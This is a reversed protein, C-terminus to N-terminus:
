RAPRCPPPSPAAPPGAGPTTPSADGPPAQAWGPPSPAGPSKAPGRTRFHHYCCQDPWSVVSVSRRRGPVPWTPVGSPTRIVPGSCAWGLGGDRELGRQAMRSHAQALAVAQDLVESWSLAEAQGPGVGMAGALESAAAVVARGHRLQGALDDWEPDSMWREVQRPGIAAMVDGDGEHGFAEPHRDRYSEIRGALGSWAQRAGPDTPPEGLVAVLHAPVIAEAALDAVRAARTDDLAADFEAVAETLEVRQPETDALAKTRRRENSLADDLRLRAVREADVASAAADEARQLASRAAVVGGKDRRGFHRESAMALQRRRDEVGYRAERLDQERAALQRKAEAAIGTSDPPLSARYADLDAAYTARAARLREIGFALPDDQRVAALTATAWHRNLEADIAAIREVRWANDADFRARRAAAAELEGVRHESVRRNARAADLRDRAQTLAQEAQSREARASRRLGSLPGFAGLRAEARELEENARTLIRVDREARAREQDLSRGPDPPAGALVGLHEDREASLRAHVIWPDDAAAFTTVPERSLGGLVVETASREDALQGGHDAVALPRTNWTHTPARGRSQGTYGVLADLSATGLLHVAEWTGGQAGEVTRCWAHSLNPNGDRRRGAVFAQALTVEGATDFAIRLGHDDVAVVTGTSGNHLGAPGPKTHLLVRDGRAYSPQAGSGWGPGTLSEGDITGAAALRARIRDAIDECDAHSVALAAVNAAGHSEVDAAVAEAMAERTALPTDDEEHEWGAETRIAQSAGAHGARLEALAMRDVADRQRRNVVLAPAPIFGAEGLRAVEAALGGAGVAQSQRPDGLCWLQAGPTNVVAGVVVAADRTSVQSVEDLIVVTGPALPRDALDLRLRAITTASIGVSRLGAVAQNTTALGLVPRGAATAAAAGAHVATTKGYGGPSILSRLAPGPGCLARVAAEQDPGLRGEAVLAQEVLDPAVAAVPTDVLTGLHDLVTNELARHAVTLWQPPRRRAENTDPVLRM